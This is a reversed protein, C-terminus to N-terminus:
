KRYRQLANEELEKRELAVERSLLELKAKSELKETIDKEVKRELMQRRALEIRELLGEKERHLRSLVDEVYVLYGYTFRLDEGDYEPALKIQRMKGIVEARVRLYAEIETELRSLENLLGAYAMQAQELEFERLRKIRRIRELNM